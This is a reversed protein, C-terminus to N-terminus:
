EGTGPNGLLSCSLRESSLSIDQRIKTDISSKVSLFEEKVSELGIMSMLEDLAENSPEGQAKLTKWEQAAKSKSISNVTKGDKTKSSKCPVAAKRSNKTISKRRESAEKLVELQGKKNSLDKQQQQAEENYCMTRRYHDIEDDLIQLERAYADQQEQRLKELELDRLVRRRTDEDERACAKCGSVQTSCSVKTKHGRECTREM